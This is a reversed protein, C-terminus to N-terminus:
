AERVAPARRSAGRGGPRFVLPAESPIRKITPRPAFVSVGDGTIAFAYEERDHALGRMKVVRIFRQQEESSERQTMTILGDIISFIPNNRYDDIGFEGLFLSTCQRTMLEVVLAYSFKRLEEPSTTLDEFVKFSDVIVLSPKVAKLRDVVLTLTDALGKTRLIVGLDVFHISGELKKADFYSFRNLYFLAKAGPESLTSFVLVPATHTANHFAVQHALITKGSGPPGVIATSSGRILGGSLVMDLNPVGTSMLGDTEPAHAREPDILPVPKADAAQILDTHLAPTLTEDTLAGVVTLFKVLVFTLGEELKGLDPVDPSNLLVRSSTGTPGLELASLFPFREVGAAQVLAAISELAIAGVAGEARRWLALWATEFDTLLSPATAEKGTRGLWAKVRGDHDSKPMM